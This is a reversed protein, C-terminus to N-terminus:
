LESLKRSSEFAAERGANGEGSLLVEGGRVDKSVGKASSPMGSNSLLLTEDLM